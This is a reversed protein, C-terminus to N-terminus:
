QLLAHENSSADGDAAHERPDPNINSASDKSVAAGPRRVFLRPRFLKGVREHRGSGSADFTGTHACGVNCKRDAYPVVALMVSCRREGAVGGSM